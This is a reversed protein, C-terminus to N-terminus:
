VDITFHILQAKEYARALTQRARDIEEPTPDRGSLRRALVILDALTPLGHPQGALHLTREAM